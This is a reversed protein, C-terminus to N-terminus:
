WAPSRWRAARTGAGGDRARPARRTPAPRATAAAAPTAKPASARGAPPPRRRARRCPRRPPARRRSRCRGDPHRGAPAAGRRGPRSRRAPACGRQGYDGHQQRGADGASANLRKAAEYTGAWASNWRPAEIQCCTLWRPPRPRTPPTSARIKALAPAPRARRGAPARPRYPREAPPAAPQMGPPQPHGADRDSETDDGPYEVAAQGSPLAQAMVSFRDSSAAPRPAASGSFPAPPAARRPSAATSSTRRWGPTAASRCSKGRVTTTSATRATMSRSRLSIRAPSRLTLAPSSEGSISTGQTSASTRMATRGESERTM